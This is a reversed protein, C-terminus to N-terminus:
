SLMKGFIFQAPYFEAVDCLKTYWIDIGYHFILVEILKM